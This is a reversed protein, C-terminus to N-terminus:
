IYSLYEEIDEGKSERDALVSLAIDNWSLKGQIMAIQIDAQEIPTLSRIYDQVMAKLRIYPYTKFDDRARKSEFLICFLKCAGYIVIIGLLM